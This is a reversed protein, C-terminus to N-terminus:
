PLIIPLPWILPLSLIETVAACMSIRGGGKRLRVHGLEGQVEAHTLHSGHLFPLLFFIEIYKKQATQYGGEWGVDGGDCYAAAYSGDATSCAIAQCPITNGNM